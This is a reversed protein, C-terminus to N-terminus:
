IAGPNAAHADEMEDMLNLIGELADTEKDVLCGDNFLINVLWAKEEHFLTWDIGEIVEKMTKAM